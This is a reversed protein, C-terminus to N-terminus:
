MGALLGAIRSAAETLSWRSKALLSVLPLVPDSFLGSACSFFLTTVLPYLCHGRSVAFM